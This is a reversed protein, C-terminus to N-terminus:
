AGRRRQDDVILRWGPVLQAVEETRRERDRRDIRRLIRAVREAVKLLTRIIDNEKIDPHGREVADLQAIDKGPEGSGRGDNENRGKLLIRNTGEVYSRAVVQEFGHRACTQASCELTREPARRLLWIRWVVRGGRDRNLYGPTRSKDWTLLHAPHFGFPIIHPQVGGVAASVQHADRNRMQLFAPGGVPEDAYVTAKEHLELVDGLERHSVPNM